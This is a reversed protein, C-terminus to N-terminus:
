AQGHKEKWTALAEALSWQGADAAYQLQFAHAADPTETRKTQKFLSRYKGSSPNDSFATTTISRIRRSMTREVLQQAETSLAAYLILKSLRPYDTPAVAFDSLLYRQGGGYQDRNFAFCGILIGDVLVGLPLMAGAPAIRPDLYHARLSNLQGATLQALSLREGIKAPTLRPVTVPKLTQAPGTWRSPGGTAYVYIPVNRNSVQVVGRLYKRKSEIEHDLGYLWFPRSEMAEIMAHLGDLDMVDYTPADWQLLEDLGKYLNEYGGVYFPPFSLIAGDDPVQHLFDM